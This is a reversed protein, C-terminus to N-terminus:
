REQQRTLNSIHLNHAQQQSRTSLHLGVSMGRSGCQMVCYKKVLSFNHTFQNGGCHSDISSYGTTCYLLQQQPQQPQAMGMDNPHYLNYSALSDTMGMDAWPLSGFSCPLGIWTVTANHQLTGALALVAPVSCATTTTTTTTITAIVSM